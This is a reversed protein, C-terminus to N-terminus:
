PTGKMFSRTAENNAIRSQRYNVTIEEGACIERLSVLDISGDTKPLMEANPVLSHNTYRGVPTRKSGIRAPAILNSAAIPVAAFIGQGHIKSPLLAVTQIDARPLLVMDDTKSMIARVTAHPVGLERIFATYDERDTAIKFDDFQQGVEIRLFAESKTILEDELKAEDTEDTRHVTLLTSDKHAYTLKRVGAESMFITGAPLRKSVGNMMVSLCGKLVINFHATKHAHGLIYTDKGRRLERICIGHGDFHNLLEVEVQAVHLLREELSDIQRNDTITSIENM